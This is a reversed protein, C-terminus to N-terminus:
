RRGEDGDPLTRKLFERFEQDAGTMDLKIRLPATVPPVYQPPRAWGLFIGAITQLPQWAMREALAELARFALYYVATLGALVVLAASESDVPIGLSGTLSLFLGVVIPVLTRMTSVFLNPM